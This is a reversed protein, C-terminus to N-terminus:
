RNWAPGYFLSRYGRKLQKSLGWKDMITDQHELWAAIEGIEGLVYPDLVLDKWDMRTTLRKAPFSMNFDPKYPEGSTFFTLYEESIELASSLVPESGQNLNLKLIHNRYFPHEPKFLDMSDIRKEIDNGAILFIATEGTPLFGSHYRGKLGGFETYVRDYTPNKLYLIDLVEPKVHPALSLALIIREEFGFGAKEVVQAYISPDGSLDPIPVEYVSEYPGANGFYRSIRTGIVDRLWNMENTLTQANYQLPTLKM